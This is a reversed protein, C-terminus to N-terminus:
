INKFEMTAIPIKIEKSPSIWVDRGIEIFGASRYFEVSNLTADIKVTKSSNNLAVKLGLNLLKKGIGKGAFEPLVFLNIIEGPATEIFGVKTDEVVAFLIKENKLSDYYYESTRDKFWNDIIEKPYSTRCLSTVSKNHILFVEEAENITAIKFNLKTM